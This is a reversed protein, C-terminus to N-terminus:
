QKHTSTHNVAKWKKGEKRAIVSAIYGCNYRISIIDHGHMTAYRKAGQETKSVDHHTGDILVGYTDM